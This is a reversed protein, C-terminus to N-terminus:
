KEIDIQKAWLWSGGSLLKSNPKVILGKIVICYNALLIIRDVTLYKLLISLWTTFHNLINRGSSYAHETRFLWAFEYNM